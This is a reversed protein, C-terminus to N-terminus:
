DAQDLARELKQSIVKTVGDAQMSVGFLVDAMEMTRRQHTIMILQTSDRLEDSYSVLRRLNTDDLAAEVEDLIYFPTSRTKYVAFLLALATLSKEGGSMLMMKSLKKGLPQATIEIGCNEIDDPDELVLSASGGPFLTSFVESFNANVIDFTKQFDTIMRADIVRIIKNLSRRAAEMDDLQRAFYDYREKFEAYEQAADPNIAGMNKIRREIKAMEDEAAQRDELPPLESARDLPTACDEVVAKVATEVQVELRSREVRVHAMRESVSDYDDHAKRAQERAAAANAHASNSATESQAIVEDLARARSQLSAAISEVLDIATSARDVVITKEALRKRSKLMSREVSEVDNERTVVMRDAYTKREGLTAEELKAATLRESCLQAEANLPKASKSVEERQAVLGQEKGRLSEIADTIDTMQPKLESVTKRVADLQSDIDELERMAGVLRSKALEEETSASSVAGKQTALEQSLRLNLTQADRYSEEAQETLKEADSRENQAQALEIKLDDLRRERALVGEAESARKGFLRTKGSPWVACGDRSVFRLGAGDRAHAELAQEATDCVVVDGFLTDMLRSAQDDGHLLDVLPVGQSRDRARSNRAPSADERMFLSVDGSLHGKEFNAIVRAIDEAGDIAVASLDEGLLHEILDEISAPAKISQVVPAMSGGIIETNEVLWELAPNGRRETRQAQEIAKIESELVHIRERAGDRAHRAEELESFRDVLNSKSEAERAQLDALTKEQRELHALAEEHASQLKGLNTSLEHRRAEVLKEHALGASLSEQMEAKERQLEGLEGAIANLSRNAEDISREVDARKSEAEKLALRATEVSERAHSHDETAQRQQVRAAELDRRAKTSRAAASDLSVRINAQHDITSRRRERLLMECSDLRESAQSTRRQKRSLEGADISDRRMAEQIENVMREATEVSDRKAALESGLDTEAKTIREWESQLSRLDDVALSLRLEDLEGKAKEYAQARKAKRELPGLQRALEGTIDRVRNLNVDMAALKRASKEKRQKHKLVGAAEEILTRRDEPKSQLVSDLSGQSIISHTGTGIGSDHLIELVDLRRVINGNVLYDSEGSRYMRRAISVEDFDIPLTGDSNDLVLEVEAMGVAKRAASGSFIIDDMAQGRLSKASREGLVWLVADSINSKGSGNPGVIATIGPELTLISRDAFSKFGKLVLSKLYM